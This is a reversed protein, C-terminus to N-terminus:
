KKFSLLRAMAFGDGGNNGKGCFITFQKGTYNNEVLWKVCATAAREMLKLSTVPENTITYKDWEKIQASNLIKM